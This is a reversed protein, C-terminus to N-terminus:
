HSPRPLPRTLAQCGGRAIAHTAPRCLRCGARAATCACCAAHAATSLCFHGCPRDTIDDNGRLVVVAQPPILTHV